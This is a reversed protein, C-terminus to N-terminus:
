DPDWYIQIHYGDPDQITVSAYRELLLPDELPPIAVGEFYSGVSKIADRTAVEFGIHFWHPLSKPENDYELVLLDGRENRLFRDGRTGDGGVFALEFGFHAEYFAQSADLDRVGLHLHNLTSKSLEIPPSITTSGDARRESRSNAQYPKM